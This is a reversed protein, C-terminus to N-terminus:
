ATGGVASTEGRDVGPDAFIRVPNFIDGSERVLLYSERGTRRRRNRNNMRPNEVLPAVSSEGQAKTLCRMKGRDVNFVM